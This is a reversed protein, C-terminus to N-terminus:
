SKDQYLLMMPDPENPEHVQPFPPLDLILSRPLELRAATCEFYALNFM